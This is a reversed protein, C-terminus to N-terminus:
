CFIETPPYSARVMFWAARWFSFFSFSNRAISLSSPLLRHMVHVCRMGLLQTKGKPVKTHLAHLPTWRSYWNRILDTALEVNLGSSISTIRCPTVIGCAGPPEGAPEAGLVLMVQGQWCVGVLCCQSLEDPHDEHLLLELCLTRVRPNGLLSGRLLLLRLLHATHERPDM